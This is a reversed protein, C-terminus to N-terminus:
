ADQTVGAGGGTFKIGALGVRASAEDPDVGARIAIGLAEFREKLVKVDAVPDAGPAERDVLRDLVGPARRRRIEAEAEEIEGPSLGLRRRVVSTGKLEEDTAVAKVAWDASAQPSIYRCPTWNVNMGWSGKPPETLKERIMVVNQAVRRLRPRVARWQYEGEDSLQAEAAQMAEASAPNDAFIGVASQPLNTEACFNQALQRYMDLHPQMTMQAFQGVDPKEGEENLDLALMRGMVAKWRDMDKFASERAGMVWRQPSAYFEASTESRLLTRIGADTLYRVERTIRSHGFPRTLQPDYVIAEMLVRGTRNPHREASWAGGVKSLQIVADRLFLVCEKADGDETMDVVALGARIERRRKDWLAASDEASRAQIMVEPEGQSSDGATTTIFAVSHKYASTFAQSLELEFENRELMENLEFPDTSGDLSFGEFVHKRALADVGKRPWGLAAKVSRMAPPLSIRLDKLLNHSEYYATLLMNKSRKSKWKVLLEGFADREEESLGPARVPLQITYSM